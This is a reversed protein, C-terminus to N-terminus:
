YNKKLDQYMKTSGPHMSYTSCHAEEIIERKFNEVNPVCLRDNIMLTGEENLSFDIHTNNRMENIIMNLQKDQSQAERVREVLVPRVNLTALLAGSNDVM